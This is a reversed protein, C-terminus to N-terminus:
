DKICRVSLGIGKNYYNKLVNNSKVDLYYLWATNKDMETKTWFYGNTKYMFFGDEYRMGSQFSNFGSTLKESDFVKSNDSNNENWGTKAKLKAGGNEGLNIELTKWEKELPIHWGKPALQRPDNVAHWNYLKGRKAGNLTDNEYYCWAPIGKVSALEWEKKTKAHFITDGNRFRSLNLNSSMWIQNNIKVENQSFGFFISIFFASAFISKLVM